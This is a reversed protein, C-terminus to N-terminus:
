LYGKHTLEKSIIRIDHGYYGNHSNYLTFQFLGKSTNLNIFQINTYEDDIDILDNSELKTDTLYIENLESGIFDEKDDVTDLYGYSECCQQVDYILLLIEQKNTQIKYGAYSTNDIKIQYDNDISEIIEKM